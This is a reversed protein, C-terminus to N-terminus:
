LTNITEVIDLYFAKVEVPRTLGGVIALHDGYFVPMINWVGPVINNRDFDKQPQGKPALASVTNVLGDNNQWASNPAYVTTILAPFIFVVDTIEPDPLRLGLPANMTSDTAVSFYYIDEYTPIKANLEAAGKFTIDYAGTGEGIGIAFAKSMAKLYDFIGLFKPGEGKIDTLGVAQSVAYILPMAEGFSTGDHPSALTTISHVLGHNGGAYLPSLDEKPTVAREAEDGQDLLATLLRITAGGFSHGVLNVKKVKGTVDKQGWGEFLPRGTYDAGFRNIGIKASYAEGYDVVTGTLQAYLECARIRASRVPDVSAAYAEYGQSRLYKLVDGDQMGWYSMVKYFDDYEGYGWYGNVFVFPYDTTESGRASVNIGFSMLVLSIALAISIFGKLKHRKIKLM